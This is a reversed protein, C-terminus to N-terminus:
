KMLSAYIALMTAILGVAGIIYGWFDKKGEGSGQIQSRSMELQGIRELLKEPLGAGSSQSEIKIVREKLDTIFISQTEIQKTTAADSKTILSTITNNQQTVAKEQAALAADVATKTDTKQEIRSTELKVFSADIQTFRSDYLEKLSNLAKQNESPARVFDDHALKVADKISNIQYSLLEKLSSIERWLQQTTLVTPDPDHDGKAQVNAPTQTDM